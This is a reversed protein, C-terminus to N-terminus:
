AAIWVIEKKNRNNLRVGNQKIRNMKKLETLRPRISYDLEGLSTILELATIGEQGSNMVATEVRSRLSPLKPKISNYAEQSTNIM